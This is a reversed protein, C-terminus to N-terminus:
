RKAYSELYGCDPCGWTVVQFVKDKPVKTVTWISSEPVGEVWEAPRTGKGVDIMWGERMSSGCKSCTNAEAM